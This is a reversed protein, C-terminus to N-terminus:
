FVALCCLLSSKAFYSFPFFLFINSKSIRIKQYCRAVFSVSNKNKKDRRCALLCKSCCDIKWGGPKFQGAWKWLKNVTYHPPRPKVKFSVDLDPDFLEVHTCVHLVCSACVCVHLSVPPHARLSHGVGYGLTFPPRHFFCSSVWETVGEADYVFVRYVSKLARWHSLHFM